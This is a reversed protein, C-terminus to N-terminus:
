VRKLYNASCFGTYLKGGVSAQVYMWRVNGSDTYYGYNYVTGGKPIVALVSKSTGCGTRLNLAETTKYTGAVTKSFSRAYDVAATNTAPKSVPASPAPTSSVEVTDYAPRGYGLITKDTLAYTRRAVMNSTNGEITHVKGGEVKEVLGTHGSNSLSSGFFIQDGPKPDGTHFQGKSRYYGLSYTCGAGASREPQCLLRLAAEYGFATVFCWDVFMDCWAYGNKKGNYWNPYKEDFDRAYKTWDSRGANATPDDLQAKTAKEKYGLQSVAVAIVAAASTKTPKAPAASTSTAPTTKGTYKEFYGQGYGARKDQTAKSNMGAPKEFKLLILNSVVRVDTATKLASLLGYQELEILLYELQTELDGISKGKGKAYKLFGEKRSWYTLQWLGFGASDHVFNTYTGSDVAAVYQTDTMGLKTEYTNQLNDPRLGSEAYLNGMLGAVGHDSLGKGKLYNWIKAETSTGVLAM